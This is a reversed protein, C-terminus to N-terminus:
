VNSDDRKALVKDIRKGDMDVIEFTWGEWHVRDGTKPVRGSLLMVMGSLTHYRGKHEEPVEKLELRDKFEPIPIFGDLLWSGDERRIAWSDSATVPKFEGTIAEFVDQLTVLGQIEGYEDVVLVFQVSSSRFNDLLEMGTLTEPVFVAPILDQSVDLAAGRISQRVLRKATMVGLINALGGRCVPFRSHSSESVVRLNTEMPQDTDLFVIDSRPTMLSMVQRDDLRFMNRVMDREQPEIVGADSGEALMANIEEETVRPADSARVGLLRLVFETSGALLWVFPRTITALWVIPKAVLRAVAEPNIQGLRKPVLEGLIITIYTISAVVLATAGIESAGKPLGLGQLWLAFPEALTAEGIIGNLVGIATIGIQLTSMFRTPHEGLEIALRASQLGDDALKQLRPRRATVLAIESMAFLGNLLVLTLLLAIDM